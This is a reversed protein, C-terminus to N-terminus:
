GADWRKTKRENARTQADFHERSVKEGDGGSDRAQLGLGGCDSIGGDGESIEFRLNTGGIGCERLGFDARTATAVIRM